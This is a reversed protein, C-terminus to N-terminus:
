RTDDKLDKIFAPAEVYDPLVVLELYSITEFNEKCFQGFRERTMSYAISFLFNYSSNKSPPTDKM